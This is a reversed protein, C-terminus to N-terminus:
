SVKLFGKQVLKKKRTGPRFNEFIKALPWGFRARGSVGKKNWWVVLVGDIGGLLHNTLCM